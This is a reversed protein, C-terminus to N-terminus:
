RQVPADTRAQKKKGVMQGRGGEREKIEGVSSGACLPCALPAGRDCARSIRSGSMVRQSASGARSCSSGSRAAGGRDAAASQRSAPLDLCMRATKPARKSHQTTGKKISKNKALGTVGRHTADQYVCKHGQLRRAPYLTSAEMVGNKSLAPTADRSPNEKTSASRFHHTRRERV